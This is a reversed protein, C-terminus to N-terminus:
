TVNEKKLIHIALWLLGVLAEDRNRRLIATITDRGALKAVVDIGVVAGVLALVAV